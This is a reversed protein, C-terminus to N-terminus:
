NEINYMNTCRYLLGRMINKISYIKILYNYLYYKM